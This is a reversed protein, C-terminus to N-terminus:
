VCNQVTLSLDGSDYRWRCSKNRLTCGFALSRLTRFSLMAVARRFVLSAKGALRHLTNEARIGCCVRCYFLVFM